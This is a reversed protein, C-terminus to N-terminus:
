GRLSLVIQELIVIDGISVGVMRFKEEFTFAKLEVVEGESM